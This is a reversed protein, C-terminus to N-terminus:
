YYNFNNKFYIYTGIEFLKILADKVINATDQATMGKHFFYGIPVKWHSDLAVVLLVLVQTAAKLTPDTTQYDKGISSFGHCFQGDWEIQKKIHMEDLMLSCFLTKGSARYEQSKINLSKFSEDTFGEGVKIEHYWSRLTSPHPLSQGFESRIFNYAKPSYFNLTLAFARLEPTFHKKKQILKNVIENMSSSFNNEILSSVKEQLGCKLKLNRLLTKVKKVQTLNRKSKRIANKAM